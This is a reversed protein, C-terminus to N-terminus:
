YNEGAVDKNALPSRLDLGAQIYHDAFVIGQERDRISSDHEIDNPAAFANVHDRGLHCLMFASIWGATKSAFTVQAEHPVVHTVVDVFFSNRISTQEFHWGKKVPSAARKISM